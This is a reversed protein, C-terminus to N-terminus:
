HVQQLGHHRVALPQARLVPGHLHACDLSGTQQPSPHLQTRYTSHLLAPAAASLTLARAVASQELPITITCQGAPPPTGRVVLM